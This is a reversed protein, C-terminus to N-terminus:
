LIKGDFERRPTVGALLGSRHFNWMETSQRAGTTSIVPRRGLTRKDMEGEEEEM